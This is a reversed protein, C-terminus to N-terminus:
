YESVALLGENKYRQLEAQSIIWEKTPGRGCARKQANVRRNRCWERVTFPKKHLIEAVEATTYWDKETRGVLLYNIATEIRDLREIVKGLDQKEEVASVAESEHKM